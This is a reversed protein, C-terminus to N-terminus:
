QKMLACQPTSLYYITTPVDGSSKNLVKLFFFVEDGKNYNRINLGGENSMRLIGVSGSSLRVTINESNLEGKYITDVQLDMDTYIYNNGLNVNFSVVAEGNEDFEETVSVGAPKQGDSTTWRSESISIIKGSVVLASNSMLEEQTFSPYEHIVLLEYPPGTQEVDYRPHKLETYGEPVISTTSNLGHTSEIVDEMNDTSVNLLTSGSDTLFFQSSHWFIIVAFVLVALILFIIIIQKQKPQMKKVRDVKRRLSLIIKLNGKTIISRLDM